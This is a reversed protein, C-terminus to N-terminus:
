SCEYCKLVIVATTNFLVWDSQQINPNPNSNLIDFNFNYIHCIRFIDITWVEWELELEVLSEYDIMGAYWATGNLVLIM